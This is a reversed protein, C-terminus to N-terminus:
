TSEAKFIGTTYGSPCRRLVVSLYNDLYTRRLVVILINSKYLLLWKYRVAWIPDLGLLYVSGTPGAPDVDIM